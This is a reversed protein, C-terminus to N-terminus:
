RMLYSSTFFDTMTRQTVRSCLTRTKQAVFKQRRSYLASSFASIDEGTLDGTTKMALFSDEDSAYKLCDQKLRRYHQCVSDGTRAVVVVGSNPNDQVSKEIMKEFNMQVEEALNKTKWDAGQEPNESAALFVKCSLLDEIPQWKPEAGMVHPPTSAARTYIFSSEIYPFTSRHPAFGTSLYSM